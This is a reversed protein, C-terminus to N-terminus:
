HMHAEIWQFNLGNGLAEELLNHTYEQLCIIDFKVHVGYNLFHHGLLGLKRFGRRANLDQPAGTPFARLPFLWM